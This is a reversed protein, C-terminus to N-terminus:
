ESYIWLWVILTDYVHIGLMMARFQVISLNVYYVGTYVGERGLVCSIEYGWGIVGGGDEMYSARWIYFHKHINKNFIMLRFIAMLASVHLQFSPLLFRDVM